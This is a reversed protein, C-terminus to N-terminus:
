INHPQKMFKNKTGVLSASNIAIVVVNHMMVTKSITVIAKRTVLRVHTDSLMIM